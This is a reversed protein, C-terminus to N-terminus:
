YFQNKLLRGQELHILALPLNLAPLGALAGYGGRHAPLRAEAPQPPVPMVGSFLTTFCPTWLVLPRSSLFGSPRRPRPWLDSVAGAAEHCSATGCAAAPACEHRGLGQAGECAGGGM